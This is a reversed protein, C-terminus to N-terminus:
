PATGSHRPRESVVQGGGGGVDFDDDSHGEGDQAWGGAAGNPQQATQKPARLTLRSEDLKFEATQTALGLRKEELWAKAQLATCAELGSLMEMCPWQLQEAHELQLLLLLNACLSTIGCTPCAPM